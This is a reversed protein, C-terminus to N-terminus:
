REPSSGPQRGPRGPQSDEHGHPPAEHSRGSTPRRDAHRNAKQIDKRSVHSGPEERAGDGVGHPRVREGGARFPGKWPHESALAHSM